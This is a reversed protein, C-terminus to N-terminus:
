NLQRYFMKNLEIFYIAFFCVQDNLKDRISFFELDQQFLYKINHFAVDGNLKQIPIFVHFFEEFHHYCMALCIMADLSSLGQRQGSRRNYTETFTSLDFVLMYRKHTSFLQKMDQNQTFLPFLFYNFM